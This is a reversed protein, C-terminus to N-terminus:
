KSITMHHLGCRYIYNLLFMIVYSIILVCVRKDDYAPDDPHLIDQEPQVNTIVLESGPPLEGCEQMIIENPKDSLIVKGSFPAIVQVCICIHM